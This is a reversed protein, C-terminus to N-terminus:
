RRALYLPPRYECGAQRVPVDRCANLTVSLVALPDTWKRAESTLIRILQQDVLAGFVPGTPAVMFAIQMLM